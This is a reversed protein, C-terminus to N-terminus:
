PFVVEISKFAAASEADGDHVTFEVTLSPSPKGDVNQYGISRLAAEYDAVSATGDLKLVGSDTDYSGSIGLQDEFVLEDGPSFGKAIRVWAGELRADDVDLTTLKPDVAVPRGGAIYTTAGDTTTVRPADNVPTVFVDRRSPTSSAGSSDTVQFEVRRTLASPDESTNEYTVSRIAAEYAALSATGTLTLEGTSDNYQGTIGNQNVFALEDEAPAFTDTCVPPGTPNGDADVPPSCVPIFKITAGSLNASDPDGVVFMGDLPLPGDNEIYALGGEGVEGVPPDNAVAVCIPKAAPESDAGADNVTFAIEKKETANGSALNRYGVSRLATAYAAVSADGTLYLTGTSDDYSGSIGNQDTFLLDDGGQFGSAIRVRASDLVTDDPDSLALERDVAVERGHEKYATCGPSTAVNPPKGLPVVDLTVQATAGDTEGDTVTFSFTDKGLFGKEPTYTVNPPQGSLAGHEPPRAIEFILPDGDADSGTLTINKPTDQKVVVFQEDATPPNKLQPGEGDPASQGGSSSSETTRFTDLTALDTLSTGPGFSGAQFMSGKPQRGLRAPKRRARFSFRRSSSSRSRSSSDAKSLGALTKKAAQERTGASAPAAAVLLLAACLALV